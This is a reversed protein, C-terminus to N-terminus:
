ISVTIAPPNHERIAHHGIIPEVAPKFLMHKAHHAFPKGHGLIDHQMPKTTSVDTVAPTEITESDPKASHPAENMFGQLELMRNKMYTIRQDITEAFHLSKEKRRQLQAHMFRIGGVIAGAAIAFGIFALPAGFSFVALAGAAVMGALFLFRTILIGTQTGGTFDLIRNLTKKVKVWKGYRTRQKRFYDDNYVNIKDLPYGTTKIREKAAPHNQVARLKKQLKKELRLFYEQKTINKGCVIVSANLNNAITNHYEKTSNRASAISKIGIIAALAIGAYAGISGSGMVGAIAVMIALHPALAAIAGILAFIFFPIVFGVIMDRVVGLAAHTRIAKTRQKFNLHYYLGTNFQPIEKNLDSATLDDDLRHNDHINARHKNQEHEFTMFHDQIWQDRIKKCAVKEDAIIKEYADAIQKVAYKERQPKNLEDRNLRILQLLLNKQGPTIRKSLVHEPNSALRRVNKRLVRTHHYNRILHATKWAIVALSIAATISLTVTLAPVSLSFAMNKAVVAFYWAIWYVMSSNIFFRWVHNIAGGIKSNAMMNVWWLPKHQDHRAPAELKLRQLFRQTRTDARKTANLANLLTEDQWPKDDRRKLHLYRKKRFRSDTIVISYIGDNGNIPITTTEETLQDLIYAHTSANDAKVVAEQEALRNVSILKKSHTYQHIARVSGVALSAIMVGLTADGARTLSGDNHHTLRDYLNSHGNSGDSVKKTLFTKLRNKASLVATGVQFDRVWTFFYDAFDIIHNQFFAELPAGLALLYRFRDIKTMKNKM